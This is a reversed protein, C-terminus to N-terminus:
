QRLILVPCHAMRVIKEAVSGMAVRKLGTRGHSPMVILDAGASEAYTVVEIGPSGILVKHQIGSYKSDPFREKLAKDLQSVREESSIDNWMVAPEVANLPRGVHVVHVHSLDKVFDVAVDVAALSEESFDVPVIVCEKQTWAMLEEKDVLLLMIQCSERDVVCVVYVRIIILSKELMDIDM